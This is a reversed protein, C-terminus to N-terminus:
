VRVEPPRSVRLSMERDAFVPTASKQIPYHQPMEERATDQAFFTLPDFSRNTRNNRAASVSQRRKDNDNGWYLKKEKAQQPPFFRLLPCVCGRLAALLVSSPCRVRQVEHPHFAGRQAPVPMATHRATAQVGQLSISFVITEVKKRQPRTQVTKRRWLKCVM